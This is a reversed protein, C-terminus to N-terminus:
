PLRENSTREGLVAAMHGASARVEFRVARPSEATACAKVSAADAAESRDIEDTGEFARVEIGAGDGEAGVTARLCKGAAINESWSTVRDGDLVLERTTVEKGDLLTDPGMAARALMRSAALPHAEFAADKWREPRVTVAFPGPRGRAELELRAGTRACAFLAM